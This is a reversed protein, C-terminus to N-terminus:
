AEKLTVTDGNETDLEFTLGQLCNELRFLIEEATFNFQYLDHIIKTIDGTTKGLFEYEYIDLWTDIDECVKLTFTDYDLELSNHFEYSNDIINDIISRFPVEEELQVDYMMRDGYKELLEDYAKQALKEKTM